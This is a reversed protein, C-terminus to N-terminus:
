SAEEIDISVWGYPAELQGSQRFGTMVLSCLGVPLARVFGKIDEVMALEADEVKSPADDEGLVIQGILLIRHRGDMAERGNYNRYGSEGISILTFVGKILDASARDSFDKLDRTVVRSPLTAALATKLAVMRQAPTM